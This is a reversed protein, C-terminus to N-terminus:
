MEEMPEFAVKRSIGLRELVELGPRRAGESGRGYLRAAYLLNERPSLKKFFAADASVRNILRKVALEKRVVDLGFGEVSGSDPLLLTSIVRILTSKGSGNAGLIGFIEGREVRLSVNNVALTRKPAPAPRWPMSWRLQSGFAKTVGNLALAPEDAQFSASAFDLTSASASASGFGTTVNVSLVRM